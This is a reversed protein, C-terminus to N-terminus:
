FENFQRDLLHRPQINGLAGLLSGRLHPIEGSLEKILRKMRRRNRDGESGAPCACAITPFDNAYSFEIIDREEVYVLPRIVTHRGNDALLKPSMAKLTGVFFQNLLLTEIFDDAHHGLALKNCGLEDMVSYLVGRRLRACFSCYSSGPRRKTEIIQYCDTQEMRCNFGHERLHQALPETRYGPFGPHVNVAILEYRVPARRRLSDLVHLLTYSDKGGSVAVAIRDGDEILNFDGIAKGVQKRIKRFLRDEIIAM